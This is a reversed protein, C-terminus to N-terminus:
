ALSFFRDYIYRHVYTGTYKKPTNSKLEYVVEDFDVYQKCVRVLKKLRTM